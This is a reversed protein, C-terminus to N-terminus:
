GRRIPVGRAKLRADQGRLYTAILKGQHSLGDFPTWGVKSKMEHNSITSRQTFDILNFDAHLGESIHGKDALRFIRAPAHCLWRVLDSRTCNGQDVHTLMVSLLTQVGPMGSPSRPYGLDKEERTHPAHDSAIVDIHGDQLAKLLGLRHKADRIPPNMQAYPGLRDYCSPAELTLHQPTVEMTCFQKRESLWLAEDVTSLHLIHIKRKTEEALAMIKKTSSLASEVNRWEPHAHASTAQDRIPTRATLIEEDESHISITASTNKFIAKLATEDNLLLSGTSSGLFIKIGACGILAEAKVLEELNDETGGIFFGHDAFSRGKARSLKDNIAEVTTTSPNTNPMELFTTVGGWVAAASGSALDEKHTLGPERFHVQSDIVGPMLHLKEANIEQTASANISPAIKEFRENKIALDLVEERDEFICHAQRIILDYNM